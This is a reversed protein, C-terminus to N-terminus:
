DYMPLGSPVSRPVDGRQDISAPDTLAGLFATLRAIESETLDVPALANAAALAARAGPNDHALFDLDDLDDREPLVAQNRDYANLAAVPDLHHRVVAALSNYAGDHGWPGTLAVNRLSPTRFKYRDAVSGTVAERGFDERGDVGHGKGPGIQPMAIAHFDQDTQFPGSHCAVCGAKGYFLMMGRSQDKSLAGEDGRLWRDFPSNDARWTNAEYVAIANAAHVFTIDGPGGIESFAAVFMDVYGPIARLRDALRAWVGGVGALNGAAGADAIPNEGPQGAMETGSTVPFMAQVALPSSLGLPLDDGAPSSFGSPHDPDTAVRGDHFMLSFERAGLNFVAPANRPVRGPVADAGDGTNRTVGLGAGGEGVPLSVGDGTHALPHHCTACSINGNGSLIKDFFLARGLATRAPYESGDHLFDRDTVAAPIDRGFHRKKKEADAGGGSAFLVSIAIIACVAADRALHPRSRGESGKTDRM